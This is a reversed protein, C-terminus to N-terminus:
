FKIIPLKNEHLETMAIKLFGTENLPEHNSLHKIDEKFLRDYQVKSSLRTVKEFKDNYVYAYPRISSTKYFLYYNDLIAIQHKKAIVYLQEINKESTKQLIRQPQWLINWELIYVIGLLLGIIWQTVLNDPLLLYLFFLSGIIYPTKQLDFFQKNEPPKNKEIFQELAEISAKIPQQIKTQHKM